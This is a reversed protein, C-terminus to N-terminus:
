ESSRRSSPPSKRVVYLHNGDSFSEIQINGKSAARFVASRLTKTPVDLLEIKIASHTSLKELQQLVERTLEQHKSRRGRNLTSLSSLGPQCKV